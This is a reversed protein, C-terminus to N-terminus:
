IGKQLHKSELVTYGTFAKKAFRPNIFGECGLPFDAYWDPPTSMISVIQPLFKEAKKSDVECVIEDHVHLVPNFGRKNLEVLATVLFDRCIAQVINETIIGGYLSKLGRNSDYVVTAKPNLPLGMTYCYPPIIDEIRANPYWLERGSPLTCKMVGQEMRFHCDGAYTEKNSDVCSKVAKDLDQWIGGTRFTADKKPKFGAIHTFENRYTDLVDEGTLGAKELDVGANAAFIRLKHLGMGYGLGLIGVKGVGNRQAKSVQDPTIGFCKAAFMKYPDGHERFLKLLKEERAIKAVGRAEVASYDCLIFVKGKEPIITPRFITAAVDDVSVYSRDGEKPLPLKSRILDYLEPTTGRHSHILKLIEETDVGDIPRPLNHIQLGYSSFRLTGAVGYAHVDYLRNNKSVRQLAADVKSETIRLAKMRLKLVDIVVPPIERAASLNEDILYPSDIYRQVIEKRLCPKGNDDVINVGHWDLWEHIQKTSRLNDEHIRGKTLHKIDETAKYVSYRSLEKITELLDIDLKIGRNNVQLHTEIVDTEVKVSDFESYLQRLIEVDAIAYTTFAQLDGPQIVPYSYGGMNLSQKATTLLPLLKKARDKGQGLIQKSLTDLKGPRNSLRALYLSDIWGPAHKGIFREWIWQDFGYANHAVIPKGAVAKMIETPVSDGRYLKVPYRTRLQYPWLREPNWKSTEVRVHNPIWTHFVSDRCVCLILIRTSPHEAYTRGGQETIDCASQTEFDLFVPTSCNYDGLM